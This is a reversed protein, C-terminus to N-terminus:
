EVVKAMLIRMETKTIPTVSLSKRNLWEDMENLLTRLSRALFQSNGIVMGDNDAILHVPADCLKDLGERTM